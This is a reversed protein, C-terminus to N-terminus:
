TRGIVSTPPKGCLALGKGFKDTTVVHHVKFPMVPAAPVSINSLGLRLEAQAELVLTSRSNM